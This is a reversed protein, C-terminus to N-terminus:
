MNAIYTRLEARRRDKEFYIRLVIQKATGLDTVTLSHRFDPHDPYENYAGEASRINAYAQNRVKEMEMQALATATNIREGYRGSKSIAVFSAMVVLLGLSVLFLTIMIELMGMGSQIRKTRRM